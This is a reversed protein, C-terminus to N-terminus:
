YEEVAELRRIIEAPMGVVQVRDPVDQAVLSGASILAGEGISINDIVISGIGVETGKGIRARGAINAGPGLSAFDGIEVHHGILCGRNLNTYMGIRAQAAIVCGANVITGTGITASNAVQASPHVLTAFQFGKKLARQIFAIRKMGGLGCAALHTTALESAENLTIVPKGLKTTQSGEPIFEDVFGALQFGGCDSVLDAVAEAYNGAGLILLEINKDIM